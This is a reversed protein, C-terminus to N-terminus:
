SVKSTSYLGERIEQSSCDQLLKFTEVDPLEGSLAMRSSAPHGFPSGIAYVKEGPHISLPAAALRVTPLPLAQTAGAQIKLQVLALDNLRDIAWLEVQTANGLPPKSALGVM